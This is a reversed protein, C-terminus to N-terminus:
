EPVVGVDPCSSVIQTGSELGRGERDPDDPAVTFDANEKIGVPLQHFGVMGFVPLLM